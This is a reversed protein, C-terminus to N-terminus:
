MGMMGLVGSQGLIFGFRLFMLISLVNLTTPVFVGSFTGLKSLRESSRLSKRRPGGVGHAKANGNDEGQLPFYSGDAPVSDRKSQRRGSSSRRVNAPADLKSKSWGLWGQVLNPVFRSPVKGRDVLGESIDHLRASADRPPQTERQPSLSFLINSSRRDLQEAQDTATRAQFNSHARNLSM